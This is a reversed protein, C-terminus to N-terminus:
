LSERHSVSLKRGFDVLANGFRRLPTRSQSGQESSALGVHGVLRNGVFSEVVLEVRQGRRIYITVM